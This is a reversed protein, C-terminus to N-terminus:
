GHRGPCTVPEVGAVMDVLVRRVAVPDLAALAEPSRWGPLFSTDATPPLVDAALLSERLETADPVDHPPLAVPVAM